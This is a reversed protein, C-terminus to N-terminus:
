SRRGRGSPGRPSTCGAAGSRPPARRGRRRGPGPRTGARGRSPRPERARPGARRALRRATTACRRVFITAVSPGAESDRLPQPRQDARAHVRDPEVERVAGVLPVGPPRPEHPLERGLEAARDGQDGVQLARLQADALELMGDHQALALLDDHARLSSAVSPSSGMAGATIPSTSSGPWSTSISSPSTRRRTSATSAPRARQATTTPPWDREWLPTLRGPTGIGIGDRM